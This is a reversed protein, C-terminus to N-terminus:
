DHEEDVDDTDYEDELTADTFIVDALNAYFPENEVQPRAKEIAEEETDAEVSLYLYDHIQVDFTVEWIKVKSM